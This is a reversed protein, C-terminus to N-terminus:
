DSGEELMLRKEFRTRVAAAVVLIVIVAIFVWFVVRVTGTMNQGLYSYVLTAPLQGIGTAIFFPWFGMSTLGAAYSIVDFSVFPLLRAVIIAYEGYRDFFKDAYELSRKGVLKEVAPRGYIKGIYFCVGAGIMSSSWSLLAGWWTGFLLGNTFTIVFAPLPAIVSQFVMLAGSVVPAWVGFGLLYTKLRGVDAKALISSGEGIFERFPPFVFYLIVFFLIAVTAGIAQSVKKSAVFICRLNMFSMYPLRGSPASEGEKLLDVLRQLM